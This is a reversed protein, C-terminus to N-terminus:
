EFYDELIDDIEDASLLAGYVIVSKNLFNSEKLKADLEKHVKEWKTGTLRAPASSRMKSLELFTHPHTRGSDARKNEIKTIIENIFEQVTKM